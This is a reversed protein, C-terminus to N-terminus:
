WGQFSCTRVGYSCQGPKPPITETTANPFNEGEHDCIMKHGPTCELRVLEEDDICAQCSALFIISLVLFAGRM